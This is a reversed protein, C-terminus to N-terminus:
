EEKQEETIKTLTVKCYAAHATPQTKKKVYLEQIQSDDPYAGANTLLDLLTKSYNDIDRKRKDKQVLEIHLAFEDDESTQWEQENITQKIVFINKNKFEKYKPSLYRQSMGAKYGKRGTGKSVFYQYMVNASVPYDLTLSLQNPIKPM